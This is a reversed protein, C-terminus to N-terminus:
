LNYREKISPDTALIKQLKALVQQTDRWQRVKAHEPANPGEARRALELFSAREYFVGEILRQEEPTLLSLAAVVAANHADNFDGDSDHSMMLHEIESQAKVTPHPYPRSHRQM